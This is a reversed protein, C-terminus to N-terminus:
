TKAYLLKGDVFISYFIVFIFLLAVGANLAAENTSPIFNKVIAAEVMMCAACLLLGIAIFKPRPFRDVLFAAVLNMITAVTVWAAALVLQTQVPFGLLRYLM